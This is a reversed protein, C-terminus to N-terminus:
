GYNRDVELKCSLKILRVTVTVSFLPKLSLSCLFPINLTPFSNPCQTTIQIKVWNKIKLKQTGEFARLIYSVHSWEVCEDESIQVYNLFKLGSYTQCKYGRLHGWSINQLHSLLENSLSENMHLECIQLVAARKVAARLPLRHKATKLEQTLALLTVWSITSITTFKYNHNERDKVQIYFPFYHNCRKTYSLPNHFHHEILGKFFCQPPKSGFRQHIHRCGEKFM